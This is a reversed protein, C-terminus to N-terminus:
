LQASTAVAVAFSHDALRWWVWQVVAGARFEGLEQFPDANLWCWRALAARLLLLHILPAAVLGALWLPDVFHYGDHPLFGRSAAQREDVHRAPQEHPPCNRVCPSVSSVGAVSTAHSASLWLRLGLRHNQRWLKVVVVLVNAAADRVIVPPNV